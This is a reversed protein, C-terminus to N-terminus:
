QTVGDVALGMERGLAILQRGEDGEAPFTQLGIKLAEAAKDKDGLVSYSRILRLWGDLNNPDDQLRAALGDVMGRIMEQREAGSMADAAALEDATPGSAETGDGQDVAGGAAVIHQQVLEMWPADPPSDKALAEFAARAEESRGAQEMALALYFRARPDDPQLRLSEEFALRADETVIGDNAAILTEGLGAMREPSAGLLRIAHRYAMEANDLRMARFYIPALLDWGAGDNPNQALHREAKAVLLAMNNGPNELRAALPQDALNPSGLSLYTGLGIAPVLLTVIVATISMGRGSTSAADKGTDGAAALLRRGIEAKAYEAEEASILGHERDRELESLQDRYVAVEGARDTRVPKANRALTVLLAAAVAATLCALIIWLFM